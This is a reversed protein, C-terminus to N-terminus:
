KDTKSSNFDTHKANLDGTIMINEASNKINNLLTTNITSAPPIHSTSINAPDYSDKLIVTIAENNTDISFCTDTIGFNINNRVFIVVGGGQRRPRDNRTIIYNPIDLKFKSKPKTGNFTLIGINNGKLFVSMEM